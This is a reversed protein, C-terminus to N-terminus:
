AVKLEASCSDLNVLPKGAVPLYPIYLGMSVEITHTGPEAAAPAIVSLVASDLVYWWTDTLPALDPVSFPGADGLTLTISESPVSVGDVSVEVREVCSLPLARYWPLRLSTRFGDPTSRLTEAEILREPFM